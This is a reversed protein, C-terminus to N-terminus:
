PPATLECASGKERIVGAQGPLPWEQKPVQGQGPPCHGGLSSGWARQRRGGSCPAHESMWRDTSNSDATAQTCTSLLSWEQM